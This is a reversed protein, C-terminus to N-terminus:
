APRSEFGSAVRTALGMYGTGCGVSHTEWVGGVRATEGATVGLVVRREINRM